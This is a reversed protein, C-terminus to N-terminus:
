LSLLSMALVWFALVSLNQFLGMSLFVTVVIYSIVLSALLMLSVLRWATALIASRVAECCRRPDRSTMQYDM